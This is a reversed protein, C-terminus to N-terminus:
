SPAKSTRFVRGEEAGIIEEHAVTGAHTHFESGPELRVLYRRAKRDILLAL